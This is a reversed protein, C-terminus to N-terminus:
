FLSAPIQTGNQVSYDQLVKIVNSKSSAINPEADRPLVLKFCSANHVDNSIVVGEASLSFDSFIPFFFFFCLYFHKM